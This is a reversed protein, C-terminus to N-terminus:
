STLERELAAVAQGATPYTQPETSSASQWDWVDEPQWSVIDGLWAAQLAEPSSADVDTGARYVEWRTAGNRGGAVRRAVVGDPLPVKFATVSSLREKM